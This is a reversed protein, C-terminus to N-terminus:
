CFDKVAVSFDVSAVVAADDATVTARSARFSASENSFSMLSAFRSADSALASNASTRWNAASACCRALLASFPVARRVSLNASLTNVSACTLLMESATLGNAPCSNSTVGYQSIVSDRAIALRIAPASTAPPQFYTAGSFDPKISPPIGPTCTQVCGVASSLTLRAARDKSMTNFRSPMSDTALVCFEALGGSELSCKITPDLGYDIDRGTVGAM